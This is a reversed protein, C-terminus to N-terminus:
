TYYTIIVRSPTKMPEGAGPADKKRLLSYEKDSTESYVTGSVPLKIFSHSHCALQTHKARSDIQPM